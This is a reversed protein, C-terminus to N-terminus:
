AKMVNSSAASTSLATVSTFPLSNSPLSIRTWFAVLPPGYGESFPSCVPSDALPSGLFDRGLGRAFTLPRREDTTDTRASWQVYAVRRGVRSAVLPSSATAESLEAGSRELSPNFSSALGRRLRTWRLFGAVSPPESSASVVASRFAGPLRGERLPGGSSPIGLM